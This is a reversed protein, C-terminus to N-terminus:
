RSRPRLAFAVGLLASAIGAPAVCFRVLLSADVNAEHAVVERVPLFIALGM